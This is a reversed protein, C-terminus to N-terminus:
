AVQSELAGDTEASLRALETLIAAPNLPKAVAGDMGAKLYDRVQHTMVNATMAVIPTSRVPEAMARIRRTAEVGDMVPMQIDMFILDFPARAAAEVGEAGNDATEVSAGLSELMRRAILRNTANDEVVLVRLGDLWDGAEVEAEQGCAVQPAEIEFWFTSGEGVTSRAHVDGGMQEVLSRTIALGLGTGGFQRTTSGDAQHFREFLAAMADPAVGVGTDQVEVRLRHTAGVGISNMRVEVGGRLTLKAANGILNFLVQRLRVPDASVWQADDQVVTRLYLGRAEVGPRMMEMVGNLVAIPDLPEPNLELKGAEIKSFDLVDNLLQTLMEGCGLAQGVLSQGDASLSENKLLHLVGLVGNLPTRIEHSMNALFRSKVEAADRAAQEGRVAADRADAIETIDQTIGRIEWKGNDCLRVGRWASRYRAWIEQGDARIARYRYVYHAAGGTRLTPMYVAGFGALDEPHINDSMQGTSVQNQDGFGAIGDTRGAETTYEGTDPDFKWMYIGASARLLGTSQAALDAETRALREATVDHAVIMTLGGEAQKVAVRVWVTHGKANRLRHELVAEGHQALSAVAELFAPRDDPHVLKIIHVGLAAEPTMANIACWAPNVSVLRGDQAVAFGDGSHQYFWAAAEADHSKTLPPTSQAMPM